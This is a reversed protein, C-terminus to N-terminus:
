TIPSRCAFNRFFGTASINNASRMGSFSAASKWFAVKDAKARLANDYILFTEVFIKGWSKL